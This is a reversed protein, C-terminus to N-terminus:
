SIEEFIWPIVVDMIPAAREWSDMGPVSTMRRFGTFKALAALNRGTSRDVDRPASLVIGALEVNHRELVEMCLLTHNITGLKDSAVLLVRADLREALSLATQTWTLPSLLGGAGEVVVLDHMKAWGRIQGVWKDFELKVKELDAADPPAIPARLRQLAQTPSKQRSAAALIVGDEGEGVEAGVGSEVPKVALTDFGQDVLRRVLAAGVFTKGVETDTGSIVLVRGM